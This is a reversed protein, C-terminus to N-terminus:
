LDQVYKAMRERTAADPMRGRGAVLNEVMHAPNSTAPIACTVAPHSIVFKLLFQPWTACGIEGAWAPLPKGALREILEARRFPRNTIVAIGREQALPLLTKEADRDVINYTFQAFDIKQQAMIDAFEGHRRGHSTTIGAYRLRGQEKWASLTKLHTKWDLLNHIQILDFKDEHWLRESTEMQGKGMFESVTWVKTATFLRRQEPLKSLTAGIVEESSGYMPSSDILGGGGSFFAELVKVRVARAEADDGVDFTVWTGMGLIPVMEGSVPIKRMLLGEDAASVVSFPVTFSAGTAACFFLFRRRDM